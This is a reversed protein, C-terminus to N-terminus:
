LTPSNRSSLPDRRLLRKRSRRNKPPTRRRTYLPLTLAEEVTWGRGIRGSITGQQLGTRESWKQVTLTEGRFTLRVNTSKNSAQEHYSAWRCNAPWGQARCEACTGCSYHGNNDIRDITHRNTPREGMDRYFAAFSERWRRCVVIGRGGYRTYSECKENHCRFVMSNWSQYEPLRSGNHTTNVRKSTRSTVERKYCGCSTTHNSNLNMTMAVTWNGCECRCFWTAYGTDTRGCYYEVTLRGRTQGTLDKFLGHTPLPCRAPPQRRTPHSNSSQDM